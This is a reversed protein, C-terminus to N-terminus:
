VLQAAMQTPQNPWPSIHHKCLCGQCPRHFFPRKYYKPCIHWINQGSGWRGRYAEKAVTLILRCGSFACIQRPFIRAILALAYIQTQANSINTPLCNVTQSNAHFDLSFTHTQANSTTPTQVSLLKWTTNPCQPMPKPANPMTFKANPCLANTFQFNLKSANPLQANPCQHM